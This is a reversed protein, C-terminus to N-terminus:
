NFNQNQSLTCDEEVLFNDALNEIKCTIVESLLALFFVVGLAFYIKDASRSGENEGYENILQSAKNSVKSERLWGTTEISGDEYYVKFERDGLGPIMVVRTIEETPLQWEKAQAIVAKENTEDVWIEQNPWLNAEFRMISFWVIIVLDMAMLVALAKKVRRIRKFFKHEMDDKWCWRM